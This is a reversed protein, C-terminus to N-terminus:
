NVTCSSNTLPSKTCACKPGQHATLLSLFTPVSNVRQALLAEPPCLGVLLAGTLQSVSILPPPVLEALGYCLSIARPHMLNQGCATCTFCCLHIRILEQESTEELLSSLYNIAPLRSIFLLTRIQAPIAAGHLFLQSASSSDPLSSQKRRPVSVCKSKSGHHM